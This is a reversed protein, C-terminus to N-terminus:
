NNLAGKNVWSQLTNYECSTLPASGLKPMDKVSFVRNAFTGDDIKAKLNAYNTLDSYTSGSGHCAASSNCRTTIINAVKGSYTVSTTDCPTSPYLVDEKDYYCSNLSLLASLPIAWRIVLKIM